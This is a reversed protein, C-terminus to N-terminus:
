KSLKDKKAIAILSLGPWPFILDITKWIWTLSDYIKMQLRPIRMRKLIKANMLWGLVGIRNFEIIKEIQYGSATLEDLLTQRTYRKIHGVAHDLPSYLYPGQPVLLVLRGKSSLADKFNRLAGLADKIHELVNM